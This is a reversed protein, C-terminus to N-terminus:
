YVLNPLVLSFLVLGAFLCVVFVNSFEFDFSCCCCFQCCFYIDYLVIEDVDAAGVQDGGVNNADYDAAVCDVGADDVNADIVLILVM